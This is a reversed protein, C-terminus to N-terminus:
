TKGQCVPLWGDLYLADTTARLRCALMQVGANAAARFAKGYAPDIEDAPRIRDVDNRGIVYLLATSHGHLQLKTLEELHKRGRETIADPFAAWRTSDVDKVRLSAQKVELYTKKGSPLELAFDFRSKKGSSSDLSVESRIQTEEIIGLRSRLHSNTHLLHAAVKNALQTNVVVLTDRVRALEWRYDLKRGNKPPASLDTLYILKSEPIISSMRGPNPCHATTERGDELM